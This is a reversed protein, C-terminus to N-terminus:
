KRMWWIVYLGGFIAVAILWDILADALSYM